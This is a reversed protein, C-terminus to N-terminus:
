KIQRKFLYQVLEAQQYHTPPIFMGDGCAEWGECGLEEFYSDIDRRRVLNGNVKVVREDALEVTIRMYEYHM